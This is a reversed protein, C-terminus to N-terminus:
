TESGKVSPMQSWDVEQSGLHQTGLGIAPDPEVEKATPRRGGEQGDPGPLPAVGNATHQNHLKGRRGCGRRGLETEAVGTCGVEGNPVCRLM